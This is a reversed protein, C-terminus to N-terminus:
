SRARYVSRVTPITFGTWCYNPSTINVSNDGWTLKEFQTSFLGQSDNTIHLWQMITSVCPGNTHVRQVFCSECQQPLVVSMNHMRDYSNLLYQNHDLERSYNGQGMTRKDTHLFYLLLYRTTFDRCLSIKKLQKSM